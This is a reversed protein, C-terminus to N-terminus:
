ISIKFHVELHWLLSFKKKVLVRIPMDYIESLFHQRLMSM